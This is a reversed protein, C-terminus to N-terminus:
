ARPPESAGVRVGAAVNTLNWATIATIALLLKALGDDGFEARARDVAGGAAGAGGLVAETLALAAREQATFWDADHWAAITHLRHPQEGRGAAERVHMDLCFSCGNIQSARIQILNILGLDLGSKSAAKTLELFADYLPPWATYVDVRANLAVRAREDSV